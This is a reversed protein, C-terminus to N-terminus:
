GVLKEKLEAVEDAEAKYSFYKDKEMLVALKNLRTWFHKGHVDSVEEKLVKIDEDIVAKNSLLECLRDLAERETIGDTEVSDFMDLQEGSSM